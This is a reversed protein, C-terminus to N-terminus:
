IKVKNLVKTLVNNVSEIDSNAMADNVEDYLAKVEEIEKKQSDNLNEMNSLKTFNENFSERNTEMMVKSLSMMKKLYDEM